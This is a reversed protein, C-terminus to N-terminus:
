TNVQKFFSFTPKQILFPPSMKPQVFTVRREDFEKTNVVQEGIELNPRLKHSVDVCCGQIQIRQFIGMRNFNRNTMGIFDILNEVIDRVVFASADDAHQM